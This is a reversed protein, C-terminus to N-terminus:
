YVSFLTLNHINRSVEECVLGGLDYAVFVIPLNERSGESSDNMRYQYIADLLGTAYEEVRVKSLIDAYTSVYTDYRYALIRANPIEDPLLEKLWLERSDKAMWPENM